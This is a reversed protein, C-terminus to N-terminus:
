GSAETQQDVANLNVRRCDRRIPLLDEGDAVEGYAIVDDGGLENVSVGVVM